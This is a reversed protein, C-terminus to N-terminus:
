TRELRFSFYLGSPVERSRMYAVTGDPEAIPLRYLRNLTREAHDVKISDNFSGVIKNALLRSSYSCWCHQLNRDMGVTDSSVAHEQCFISRLYGWRMIPDIGVMSFSPVVAKRELAHSCLAASICNAHYSAQYVTRAKASGVLAVAARSGLMSFLRPEGLEFLKVKKDVVNCWSSALQSVTANLDEVIAPTNKKVVEGPQRCVVKYYCGPSSSKIIGGADSAVMVHRFDRIWLDRIESVSEELLLFAFRSLPDSPLRKTVADPWVKTYDLFLNDQSVVDVREYENCLRQFEQAGYVSRCIAETGQHVLGVNSFVSYPVSRTNTVVRNPMVAMQASTRNGGCDEILIEKTTQLNPVDAVSRTLLLQKLEKWKGDVRSWQELLDDRQDVIAPIDPGGEKLQRHVADFEAISNQLTTTTATIDYIFMFSLKVMQNVRFQQDLGAELRGVPFSALSALAQDFYLRKVETGQLAVNDGQLVVNQYPIMGLISCIKQPQDHETKLIEFIERPLLDIPTRHGGRPVRLPAVLRSTQVESAQSMTTSAELNSVASVISPATALATLNEPTRGNMAEIMAKTAEAAGLLITIATEMQEVNSPQAGRMSDIIDRVREVSARQGEVAALIGRMTSQMEWVQQSVTTDQRERAPGAGRGAVIFLDFAPKVKNIVQDFVSQSPPAPLTDTGYALARFAALLAAMSRDSREQFIPETGQTALIYDACAEQTLSRLSGVAEILLEWESLVYSRNSCAITGKKYYEIVARYKTIVKEVSDALPGLMLPNTKGDQAYRDVAVFDTYIDQMQRIVCVSHEEVIAPYLGNAPRGELLSYHTAIFNDRTQNLLDGGTEDSSSGNSYAVLNAVSAIKAANAKQQHAVQITHIPVERVVVNDGLTPTTTTRVAFAVTEYMTVIELLRSQFATGLRDIKTVEVATVANINSVAPEYAAHLENWQSKAALLGDLAAQSPPALINAGKNGQVLNDIAALITNLTVVLGVQSTAVRVENGIQLYFQNAQEELLLLEDTRLLLDQWDTSGMDATPDCEGADNVYLQVARVMSAFLPVSMDSIQKALNKAINQSESATDANLIQNLLPSFVQMNYTVERMQHITCLKNLVPVGAWTAGEVIGVHSNLFLLQTGKLRGVNATISSGLGRGINNAVFM